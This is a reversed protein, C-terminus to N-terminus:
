QRVIWEEKTVDWVKKYKDYMVFAFWLQEMTNFGRAYVNFAYQGKEHTLFDWFRYLLYNSLGSPEIMKQLQDQRPLWVLKKARYGAGEDYGVQSIDIYHTSEDHVLYPNYITTGLVEITHTGDYDDETYFCDGDEFNYNFVREGNKIPAHTRMQQIEQAQECMKIYKEDTDM